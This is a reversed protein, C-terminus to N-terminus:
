QLKEVPLFGLNVWDKGYEKEALIPVEELLQELLPPALASRIWIVVKLNKRLSHIMFGRVGPGIEPFIVPSLGFDVLVTSGEPMEQITDYFARAHETIPIPIGLPVIATVFAVLLGIVYIIRYDIKRLKQLITEEKAETM